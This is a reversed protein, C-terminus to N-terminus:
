QRSRVKVKKVTNTRMLVVDVNNEGLSVKRYYARSEELCQVDVIHEVVHKYGDCEPFPTKTKTDLSFYGNVEIYTKGGITIFCM